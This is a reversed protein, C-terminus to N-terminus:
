APAVREVEVCNARPAHGPAGDIFRYHIQGYGGALRLAKCPSVVPEQPGKWGKLQYPEWAHDMILQGPQM